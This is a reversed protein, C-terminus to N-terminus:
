EVKPGNRVAAGASSPGLPDSSPEILAPPAVPNFDAWTGEQWEGQAREIDRADHSRLVNVAVDELGVRSVDVAVMVGTSHTTPLDGPHSDGAGSIGGVLSGTYAGVAAATAAGIAGVIPVAAAAAGLVAAGIAAGGVGSAYVDKSNPDVDRDGGIPFQDRRGPPSVYFKSVEDPRFSCATLEEVVRDAQEFTDFMGAIIDTM